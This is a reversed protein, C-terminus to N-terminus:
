LLRDDFGARSVSGATERLARESRIREEEEELLTNILETQTALKRARMLGRVRSEPVRVTIAKKSRAYSVSILKDYAPAPRL